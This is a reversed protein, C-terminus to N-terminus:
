SKIIQISVLFCIIINIPKDKSTPNKDL